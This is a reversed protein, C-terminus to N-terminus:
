FKHALPIRSFEVQWSNEAEIILWIAFSRRARSEGFAAAEPKGREPIVDCTAQLCRSTREFAAGDLRCFDFQDRIALLVDLCWFLVLDPTIVLSLHHDLHRRDGISMEM